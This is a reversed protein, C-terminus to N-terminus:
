PRPLRKLLGGATKLGVEAVKGALRVAGLLPDTSGAPPPGEPGRLPPPVSHGPPKPRPPPKATGAAKRATSGSRATKEGAKARATKARAAKARTSPSAKATASASATKAPASAGGRSAGGRKDSRHGPRSRPLNGLVGPEDSKDAAVRSFYRRRRRRRLGGAL